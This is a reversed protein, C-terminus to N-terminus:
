QFPALPAFGRPAPEQRASKAALSVPHASTAIDVAQSRSRVASVTQQVSTAVSSRSVRRVMPEIVWRLASPIDRSLAIAEVEIYVGGDREEFRAISFLRWILGTGRNEPLANQAPTNFETIERVRTTETISYWRRADLRTFSSQYEAFIATKGFVSTNMLIMSFQDESDAAAILKSDIVNPHYYDKYRDYNRIVPIVNDLTTNPIFGAGIWDHILGSPVKSPVQPGAPLVLIEGRRLKKTQNPIEDCALFSHELREQNRAEVTKVYDDWRELAESKLDAAVSSSSVFFLIALLVRFVSLRVPFWARHQAALVVVTTAEGTISAVIERAEPQEAVLQAGAEHWRRLITRGFAEVQTVHSLDVILARGALTSSATRQAQELERAASDSLAGWLKFSFAVSGDHM